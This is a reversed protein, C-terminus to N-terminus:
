HTIIAPKSAVFDCFFENSSAPSGTSSGSRDVGYVVQEAILATNILNRIRAKEEELRMM